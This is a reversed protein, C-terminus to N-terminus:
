TREDIAAAIALSAVKLGKEGVWSGPEYRM